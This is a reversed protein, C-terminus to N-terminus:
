WDGRRNDAIRRLKEARGTKRENYGRDGYPELRELWIEELTSLEESPDVSPDDGPVIQDLIEFAFKEGGLANWDAQLRANGHSGHSLQFRHRNVLGALNRGAVVFVKEDVMNRIQFVGMPRIGQKYERKRDKRDAM